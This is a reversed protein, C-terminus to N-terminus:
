QTGGTKVQALLVKFCGSNAAARITAVYNDQAPLDYDVYYTDSLNSDKVLNGDIEDGKSYLQFSPQLQSDAVIRLTHKGKEAINFRLYRYVGLKNSGGYATTTCVTSDNGVINAKNKVGPELTAYVSLVFKKNAAVVSPPLVLQKLGFM